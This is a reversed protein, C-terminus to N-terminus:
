VNQERLTMGYSLAYASVEPKLGDFYNHMEEPNKFEAVHPVKEKPSKAVVCFPLNYAHEPVKM